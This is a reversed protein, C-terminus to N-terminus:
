PSELSLSGQFSPWYYKGELPYVTYRRYLEVGTARSRAMIGELM